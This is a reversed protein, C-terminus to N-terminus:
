AAKETVIFGGAQPAIRFQTAAVATVTGGFDLRALPPDNAQTDSYILAFAASIGSGTADWNVPDFTFRSKNTATTAISVGTLAKTNQTYGNATALQTAGSEAAAKTTATANEPLATYLTVVYTDSAPFEGAQIKRTTHDYFTVSVPV